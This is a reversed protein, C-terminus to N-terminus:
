GFDMLNQLCETEYREMGAKFYDPDKECGIWNLGHSHCAVATTFSGLFPDFVIANEPAYTQILYSFLSVAKQTPHIKESQQGNYMQIISTPYYQDNESLQGNHNGYCGNNVKSNGKKRFEGKTMIPNYLAKGNSFICVDEHRRLPMKKANLFGTTSKKDWTLDYKFMEPNSMILVSTFPQAATMVFNINQKATRKLECWFEELNIISDWKNATTGYPPDTLVLDICKDPLERMFDLCDGEYATNLKWNTGNKLKITNM